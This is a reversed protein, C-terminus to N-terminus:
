AFDHWARPDGFKRNSFYWEQSVGARMFSQFTQARFRLVRFGQEKVGLGSGKPAKCRSRSGLGSAKIAQAKPGNLNLSTETFIYIYVCM